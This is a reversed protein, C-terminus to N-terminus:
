NAVINVLKNPVVIEKRITKGAIAEQVKENAHAIELLAEKASDNPVQLKAKIKGNVQVVIEIEDDVIMAPDFTPWDVYSIGPENGVIVWMEEALHPAIPAILQIFGKVYEYYLSEAKNAENVFVMMQSIATNFHLNDFDETVKQVTQHYVKDLEGTNMTTIRDRM